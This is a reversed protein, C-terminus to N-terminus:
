SAARGRDHDVRAARSSLVLRATRSEPKRELVAKSADPGSDEDAWVHKARDASSKPKGWDSTLHRLLLEFGSIPLEIVVAELQDLRFSYVASTIHVNGILLEDSPRVLLRTDGDQHLVTMGEAPAQGWRIGRYGPWLPKRVSAAEPARSAAVKAPKAKRPPPAGGGMAEEELRRRRRYMWVLLAPGVIFATVLVWTQALFRELLTGEADGPRRWIAPGPLPVAEM